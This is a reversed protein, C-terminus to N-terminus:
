EDGHTKNYKIGDEVLSCCIDHHTKLLRVMRATVNDRYDDTANSIVPNDILRKCYRIEKGLWKLFEKKDKM